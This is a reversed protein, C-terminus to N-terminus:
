AWLANFCDNQQDKFCYVLLLQIYFIVYVFKMSMLAAIGTHRDTIVEKIVVDTSLLTDMGRKFGLREMNTSKRGEVERVAIINQQLIVEDVM